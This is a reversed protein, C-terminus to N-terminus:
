EGKIFDRIDGAVVGACSESLDNAGHAITKLEAQPIYQAYAQSM